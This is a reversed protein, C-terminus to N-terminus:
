LRTATEVQADRTAREPAAVIQDREVYGTTGDALEVQVFPGGGGPLARMRTATHIETGREADFRPELYLAYPVGAWSAVLSVPGPPIERSRYVSRPDSVGHTLLQILQQAREATGRRGSTEVVVETAEAGLIATCSVWQIRRRPRGWFGVLKNWRRDEVIRGEGPGAVEFRYPPVGLLQEMVAYVERPPVTSTFRWSRKSKALMAAITPPQM